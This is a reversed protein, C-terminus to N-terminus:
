MEGNNVVGEQVETIAQNKIQQYVDDPLGFSNSPDPAVWNPNEYFGSEPDYCFRFAIVHEPVDVNEYMTTFGTPYAVDNGNEDTIIPYGNDWYEKLTGIAMIEHTDTDTIITNM